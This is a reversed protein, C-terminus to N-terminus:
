EISGTRWLAQGRTGTSSRLSSGRSRRPIQCDRASTSVASCLVRRRGMALSKVPSSKTLPYNLLSPPLRGLKCPSGFHGPFCRLDDFHRAAHFDVHIHARGALLRGAFKVYKSAPPGGERRTRILPRALLPTWRRPIQTYSKANENEPSPDHKADDDQASRGAAAYRLPIAAALHAALRTAFMGFELARLGRDCDAAVALVPEQDIGGRIQALLQDCGRLKM